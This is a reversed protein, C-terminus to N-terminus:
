PWKGVLRGSMNLPNIFRKIVCTAHLLICTSIIKGIKAGAFYAYLVDKYKVSKQEQLILM